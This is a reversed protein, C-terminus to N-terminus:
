YFANRLRETQNKQSNNILNQCYRNIDDVDENKSTCYIRFDNLDFLDNKKKNNMERLQLLIDLRSDEDYTFIRITKKKQPTGNNGSQNLFFDSFYHYDTIGLSHGFFIVEDAKELAYRINSSRYNPNHSKITFCYEKPIDINDEIGLIISSEKISSHVHTYKLNNFGVLQSIRSFDSYNYNYIKFYGNKGVAQFLKAATSQNNITSYDLSKLYDM